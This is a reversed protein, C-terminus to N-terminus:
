TYEGCSSEGAMRAGWHGCRLHPCWATVAQLKVSLHGSHM